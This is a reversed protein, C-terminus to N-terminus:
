FATLSQCTQCKIYNIRNEKVLTTNKSKCQKCSVFDEIYKLICGEIRVSKISKDFLLAGSADLSSKSEFENDIYEKVILSDRNIKECIARFNIVCTKRNIQHIIPKCIKINAQANNISELKNYARELMFQTTYETM